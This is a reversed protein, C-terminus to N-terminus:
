SGLRGEVAKSLLGCLKGIHLEICARIRGEGPTIGTCVSKLDVACFRSLAHPAAGVAATSGSLLLAAGLAFMMSRKAM